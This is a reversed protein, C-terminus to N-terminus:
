DTVVIRYYGANGLSEAELKQATGDGEITRVDTWEGSFLSDRSQITYKLGPQTKVGLAVSDEGLVFADNAGDETEAIVPIANDNFQLAIVNDVVEADYYCPLALAEGDVIVEHRANDVSVSSAGKIKVRGGSRVQALMEGKTLSADLPKEVGEATVIVSVDQAPLEVKYTVRGDLLTTISIIAEGVQRYANGDFHVDGAVDRVYATVSKGKKANTTTLSTAVFAGYYTAGGLYSPIFLRVNNVSVKDSLESAAWVAEELDTSGLAASCVGEKTIAEAFSM